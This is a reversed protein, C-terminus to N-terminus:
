HLGLVATAISFYLVLGTADCFTSIFPNSFVAPDAGIKKAIIPMLGGVCAAMTCVALLTLGMVVGIGMGYVLGAIVFGVGGLVAGLTAGVRLERWIVQPLDRVRVEGVALARTVTTAAQNGTNGGTGTLLPIFLALVVVQDLKDEFIELVQVTLIASVALVILWVIRSKVIHLISSSLYAAALPEAGGSRVADETDEMEVIDVADDHTLIGVLRHEEDVIPMAILREDLFRRATAERPDTAKAYIAKGSVDRVLAHPHAGMLARLSVAGCLKRQGEVVPLLYITELGDLQARVVDLAQEVTSDAPIGVVEPSMYRGIADKPYGLVTATMDREAPSLGVMVRDVVKAPLEDFLEARDDPDLDEVVQFVESSQLLGILRAQSGPQLDEFVDLARDKSLSRYLLAAQEGPLSNILYTIAGIDLANAVFGMEALEDESGGAGQGLSKLYQELQTLHQDSM